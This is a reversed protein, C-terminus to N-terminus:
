WINISYRSRMLCQTLTQLITILKRLFCVRLHLSPHLCNTSSPEWSESPSCSAPRPLVPSSHYLQLHPSPQYCLSPLHLSDESNGQISAILCQEYSWNNPSPLHWDATHFELFCVWSHAGAPLLGLLQPFPIRTNLSFQTARWLTWLSLTCLSPYSLIETKRSNATPSSLVSMYFLYNHDAM